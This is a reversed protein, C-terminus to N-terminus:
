INICSYKKLRYLCKRIILLFIDRKFFEIDNKFDLYCNIELNNNKFIFDIMINKVINIELSDDDIEYIELLVKYVNNNKTTSIKFNIKNNNKLDFKQLNFSISFFGNKMESYNLILDENLKHFLEFLKNQELINKLNSKENYKENLNIIFKYDNISYISINKEKSILNYNNM